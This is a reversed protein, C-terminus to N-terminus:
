GGVLSRTAATAQDVIFSPYLVFGLMALAAVAIAVRVGYGPLADIAGPTEDFYMLKIVRLYYYAGVVSALVGIIALSVLGAKVAALFVFYKAFFGALPPIGVLSFMFVAMAAALVPDTKALGSFDRLEVAAQGQRRMCLIVGFAGLVNLAYIALYILLARVGDKSVIALGILAYGANAISSYAMLRKINSQMLGALGGLLMSAVAVFAIIQAWQHGLGGMPLLLVRTLMALAAIKPGASFFATVPTPAGEYVDPAWMHFPVAALKFAMGACVFVMGFIIGLPTPQVAKLRFALNVFETTGAYGYLLSIGYLLLGSSLAGLVFYKLGAESSKADDRRFAALVYLALSQLELGVYLAMFDSASIMLMMGLTAFLVLVAYEFRELKEGRSASMAMLLSLASAILVMLKAFRTFGNDVFMNGFGFQIAHSALLHIREPCIVLFGAVGLALVALANVAATVRDGCFAGFVLLVFGFIALVIEPMVLMTDMANM